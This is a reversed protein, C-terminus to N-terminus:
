RLLKQLREKEPDPREMRVWAAHQRYFEQEQPDLKKGKRLKDRIGVLLSLQGEGIGHFFSLFTWWHLHPLSRVEVGAVRNVGAIIAPADLQWDLLKPGPREPQGGGSLFATLFAMAEQEAEQPISAEYFVRLAVQWRLPLPLGGNELYNLLKLILRFDTRLKYRKGLFEATEPLGYGDMAQMM